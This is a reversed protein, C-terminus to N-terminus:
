ARSLEWTDGGGGGGGLIRPWWARAARQAELRRLRADLAQVSAKTDALTEKVQVFADRLEQKEARTAEAKAEDKVKSVTVEYAVAAGAVQKCPTLRLASRPSREARRLARAAFIFVEGMFDAAKKLAADDDLRTVFVQARLAATLLLTVVRFGRGHRRWRRAGDRRVKRGTALEGESKLKQTLAANYEHMRQGLRTLLSRLAPHAIASSKLQSALPKSIQKVLLSGLKVYLAFVM